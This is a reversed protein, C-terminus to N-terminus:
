VYIAVTEVTYEPACWHLGSRVNFVYKPDWCARTVKMSCKEADTSHINREVNVMMKWNCIAYRMEVLTDM